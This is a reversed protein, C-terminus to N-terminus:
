RWKLERSKYEPPVRNSDRGSFPTVRIKERNGETRGPFQQSLAEFISMAAENWMRGVEYNLKDYWQFSYQRAVPLATFDWRGTNM